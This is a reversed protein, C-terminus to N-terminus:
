FLIFTKDVYLGVYYLGILLLMAIIWVSVLHIIKRQKRPKHLWFYSFICAVVFVILYGILLTINRM